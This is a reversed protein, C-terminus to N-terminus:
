STMPASSCITSRRSTLPQNSDSIHGEVTERFNSTGEARDVRVGIVGWGDRCRASDPSM